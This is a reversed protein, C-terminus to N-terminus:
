AAVPRRRAPDYPRRTRLMACLVSLLRDAITRLARARSHGRDRLKAYAARWHPDWQVAGAALFHLANLLRHNCAHRRLVVRTKGSQKTVPGVGGELRLTHYDRQRLAQPAEALLTAVVIQGAGPLSRLITVDRQEGDQGSPDESSPVADCCADLRACCAKLQEQVLRLRPILSRIHMTAAPITGPAVTISPAQLQQLVAAADFRRLRHRKFLQALRQPRLRAADAPTPALTWLDLFWPAALEAELALLQPYYRHLQARLRNVLRTREATLEAALRAHERLEIVAPDDVTLRRFAHPIARLATALVAADRADDKAGAVTFHDRLRDVQKPNIAFVTCGRELLTEVVAGRPVEIAIWVAAMAGGALTELWSGLETLGAGGYRVSRRGVVAGAADLACVRLEQTGWDIGVFWQGCETM